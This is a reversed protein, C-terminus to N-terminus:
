NEPKVAIKGTQEPMTSKIQSVLGIAGFFDNSDTMTPLVGTNVQTAEGLVSPHLSTILGAITNVKKRIDNIQNQIDELDISAGAVHPVIGGQPGYGPAYDGGRGSIAATSTATNSSSGGCSQTNCALTADGSCFSNDVANNQEDLCTRKQIGGGCTVSCAGPDSWHHTTGGRGCSQTNCSRSYNGGDLLSCDAGGYQPEPNTCYRLQTGGGCTASCQGWDTWHGNIPCPTTAACSKIGGQGNPVQSEPLGCSTPCNGACAQTNCSQSTDGICNAGGFQPAPNTCTRTQTGGGCTASCTSWDTWGGDIPCPSTATCAVSGGFGNPVTGGQFGCNTPCTGACAWSNCSQSSNGACNAGGFQPAPNTCTRTQTGGGCTASCTSWDTWGGDIPCPSTATCAVIGGSGNPVSGGQYGCATPCTGACAWPNCSQSDLGVCNTGGFQPAPNTCYRMQIGGGCTASCQGWTTWGGDIPCPTTEQCIITGGQGDPVRGGSYGCATPCTGACAWSNCSRSTDGICQAGGFQPAPNTCSRSQFGGGCTATCTSWDTWGGDIPCPSTSICTKMAGHGDPVQSEPLGCATPCVGECAWDSCIKSTNGICTAGGFQPAPNTCTRLQTGGGCTKNCTGWDTWGGDIPCSSTPTCTKLGGNGDPVLGGSYGCYTPCTQACAWSNCSQSSNGACDAGGFQPAPNTCTRTQTSGGCTASCTSWDTWGGDIPCPKTSACTVTGGHEGPITGGQYGCATPCTLTLSNYFVCSVIDDTAMQLGTVGNTTATGNDFAGSCAASGFVYGSFINSETVDYTGNALAVAETQGNSDTVEDANGGINFKWGSDAAVWGTPNGIRKSVTLTGGCLRSAIQQLTTALASFDAANYYADDSSIAKLNAPNLAEDGSPNGIGLTIIRAGSNKITNAQTIAADLAAQDFGYGPGLNNGYQNPNGDSAFVVINQHKVDPRPDFTSNAKILGDEWDTSGGSTAANIGTKVLTINTSFAQKVSATTDFDTVSFDTPTVSLTDVFHGVSNKMQALETDDISGSSDLVLAIDFGCGDGAPPNTAPIPAVPPTYCGAFVNDAPLGFRLAFVVIIAFMFVLFQSVRFAKLNIFCFSNIKNMNKTTMRICFFKIKSENM